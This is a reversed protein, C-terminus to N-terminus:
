LPVKESIEMDLSELPKLDSFNLSAFSGRFLRFVLFILGDELSEPSVELSFVDKTTVMNELGLNALAPIDPQLTSTNASHQLTTRGQRGLTRTVDCRNKCNPIAIGM